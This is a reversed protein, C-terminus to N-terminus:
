GSGICRRRVCRVALSEGAAVQAPTTVVAGSENTVISYGRRLVGDPNMRRWNTHRRTLGRGCTCSSLACRCMSGGRDITWRRDGSIWRANRSCVNWAVGSRM